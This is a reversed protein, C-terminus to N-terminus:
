HSYSPMPPLKPMMAVVYPPMMMAKRSDTRHALPPYISRASSTPVHFHNSLPLGGPLSSSMIRELNPSSAIPANTSRPTLLSSPLLTPDARLFLCFLETKFPTMRAQVTLFLYLRFPTPSASNSSAILTQASLPQLPGTKASSWALLPLTKGLIKLPPNSLLSFLALSISSLTISCLPPDAVLATPLPPFPLFYIALNYLVKLLAMDIM